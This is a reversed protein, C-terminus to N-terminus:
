EGKRGTDGWAFAADCQRKLKKGRAKLTRNKSNGLTLLTHLLPAGEEGRALAHKGTTNHRRKLCQDM